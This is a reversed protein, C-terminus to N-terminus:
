HCAQGQGSDTFAGDVPVFEWDYSDLYLTLKLVGFAEGSRVESNERIEALGRLSAGGTGAVFQRIGREADAIGDPNQPAFRQYDHDHGSVVVDAGFDYLAVWFPAVREHNGHSGSSFRPHHWYALTCRAANAELDARLWAEQPSGADCAVVSCNSNLAIVHWAGLDYSYYGKDREGAAAGFYDFYSSAGETHYDHNGPSPRTRERHRGWTPDYCQAFESATGDPYVNDGATFITGAIRDLLAATREDGSGGCSAIDGAGVLVAAQPAETPTPTALPTPAATVQPTPTTTRGTASAEGGQGADRPREADGGSCAMLISVGLLAPVFPTRDM